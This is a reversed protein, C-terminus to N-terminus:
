RGACLRHAPADTGRELGIVDQLNKPILAVSWVIWAISSCFESARGEFEPSGACAALTVAERHGCKGIAPCPLLKFENATCLAIQAHRWLGSLYMRQDRRVGTTNRAYVVAPKCAQGLKGPRRLGLGSANVQFDFDACLDVA